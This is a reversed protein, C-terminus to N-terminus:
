LASVLFCSEQLPFSMSSSSNSTPPFGAYYSIMSLFLVSAKPLYSYSVTDFVVWGYLIQMNDLSIQAEMYENERQFSNQVYFNEQDMGNKNKIILGLIM